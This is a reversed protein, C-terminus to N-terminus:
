KLIEPVHKDRQEKLEDSFYMLMMALRPTMDKRAMDTLSSAMTLAIVMAELSSVTFPVESEKLRDALLKKIDNVEEVAGAQLLTEKFLEIMKARIEKKNM